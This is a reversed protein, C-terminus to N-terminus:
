TNTAIFKRTPGSILDRQPFKSWLQFAEAELTTRKLDNEILEACAEVLRDYPVGCVAQRVFPYIDTGNNVEAVVAKSNSLLYSVRVIEFIFTDYYHMNLVVKSRAVYSDLEERFINSSLIVVNYGRNILGDLVVKRRQNVAGYFLIDIDQVQASQVRRIVDAHGIPAWQANVNVGATKMWQINRQSYDWVTYHSLAQLYKHDFYESSSGLQELNFIITTAPDQEFNEILHVGFVLNFGNQTDMGISSQFSLNTLAESMGEAVDLFVMNTPVVTFPHM